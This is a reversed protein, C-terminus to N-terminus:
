EQPPPPPAAPRLERKGIPPPPPPANGPPPPPMVSRMTQEIVEDFKEQQQPNCLSRIKKFHQFALKDLQRQDAVIVDLVSDTNTGTSDNGKLFSFFYDKSEGIRRRIIGSQQRHEKTLAEIKIKQASDFGIQKDLFYVPGGKAEPDPSKNHSFFIALATINLIILVVVATLLINNRRNSM